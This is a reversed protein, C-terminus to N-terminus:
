GLKNLARAMNSKKNAANNRHFVGKTVAKDLKRSAIRLQEEAATKDGGAVIENFKRIETRVASRISKNRVRRKENTLVRKQQQKINAM